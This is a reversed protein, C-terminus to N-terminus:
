VRSLLRWSSHSSQKNHVWMESKKSLMAYKRKSRCYFHTNVMDSINKSGRNQIDLYYYHFCQILDGESICRGPSGLRPQHCKLGECCERIVPLHDSTLGCIQKHVVCLEPDAVDSEQASITPAICCLTLALVYTKM